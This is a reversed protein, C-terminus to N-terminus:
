QTNRRQFLANLRQHITERFALVKHYQEPYRRAVRQLYRQILPNHESLILLGVGMFLIGQLIPLFCGIVGLILFTWGITITVIRKM